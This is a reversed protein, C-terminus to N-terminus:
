GNDVPLVWRLQPPPDARSLTDAIRNHSSVIHHTPDGIPGSSPPGLAVPDVDIMTISSTESSIRCLLQSRVEAPNDDPVRLMLNMPRHWVPPGRERVLGAAELECVYQSVMARSSKPFVVDPGRLVATDSAGLLSRQTREDFSRVM